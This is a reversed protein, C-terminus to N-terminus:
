CPRGKRDLTEAYWGATREATARWTYTDLVRRRGARGLQEALSPSDLVLQLAATLEGVDGARVRIGAKSGVVEPLAGADTTVLPTACAMAEVAPLSFGEYLSPIAVLSAARFLRILEEEPVPGTFRVADRLGLRDLAAEAPGGPRTSGVVTLRVPRETRLKALAELLHVLGKLPVDASTVALISDAERPRDAPPPSFRDPDIGVPIVSMRDPALGMHAAIDRRSNESVTTVADLQQVVRAQMRTFAYWRRLTLKRRLTPAAALELDRDIAIPHHVTAVTPVGARVLRLLGYGLSQNDHVVDFEGRRPLLHRAARLTFTLPEPFGATCMTAWEAVDVWDRIESPRPTRFPDPERYLDLSPVRTLPVGADLEPYPQGSLVEVRHGLERLERSLARVYIGQGGSHPKSRYSLLAIRLSRGM